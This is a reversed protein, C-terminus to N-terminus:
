HSVPSQPADRQRGYVEITTKEWLGGLISRRRVDAYEIDALAGRKAAQGIGFGSWEARMGLRTLPEKLVTRSSSAADPAVATRHMNRTSPETIDTYIFGYTCGSLLAVLSLGAACIATRGRRFFAFFLKHEPGARAPSLSIGSNGM